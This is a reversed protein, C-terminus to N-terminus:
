ELFLQVSLLNGPKQGGIKPNYKTKPKPMGNSTVTSRGLKASM